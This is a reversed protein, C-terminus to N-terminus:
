ASIRSKFMWFRLGMAIWAVTLGILLGIWIGDAGFGMPFGLVYAVPLGVLWYSFSALWMPVATDHVGRLLSLATVQGGDSFQFLAAYLMLGAGMAIVADREPETPAIYLGVLMEPVTLFMTFSVVAFLMSLGTVVLAGRRLEAEDKRGLAAGVRITGAQSIGIQVMFAIASLQLAIGHAALQVTGLWGMMIAAANFLGVEALATLGIPVGMRFVRWFIEMDPKFPNQFLAHEPSSRHAYWGLYLMTGTTVLLSAVASGTVGMEPAGLNGFILAYDLVANALVAVLIVILIVRTRELAAYYSRFVAVVLAPAMELGTIALYEEALDSIEPKQGMAVLLDSSFAMLPYVAVAALLSLWVGMRTARRVMTHDGEAAATTVLPMVAFAFGAVLIFIIFWYGSALVLAALEDLGYWGMMLVDTMHLAFQALQTGALPLALAMVARAHAKYSNDTPTM